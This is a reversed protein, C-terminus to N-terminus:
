PFNENDYQKSPWHMMTPSHYGECTLTPAVGRNTSSRVGTQLPALEWRCQLWGGDTILEQEGAGAALFWWGGEATTAGICYAQM